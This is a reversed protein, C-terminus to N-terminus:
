AQLSSKIPPKRWADLQQGIHVEGLNVCSGCVHATIRVPLLNPFHVLSVKHAAQRKHCVACPLATLVAAEIKM